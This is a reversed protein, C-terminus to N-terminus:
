GPGADLAVGDPGYAPPSCRSLHAMVHTNATGTIPKRANRTTPDMVPWTFSFDHQPMASGRQSARM